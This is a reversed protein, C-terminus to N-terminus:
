HGEAEFEVEYVADVEMEISALTWRVGALPDHVPAFLAGALRLYSDFKGPANSVVRRSRPM